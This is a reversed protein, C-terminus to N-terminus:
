RGPADAPAPVFELFDINFNGEAVVSVKMVHLGQDLRVRALEPASSWIHWHTTGPLPIPGTAEVGDFAISIQAADTRSTMHAQIVYTGAAKVEVSYKVWEGPATWGLYLAGVKEQVGDVTKDLGNKTYSLDVGEDMRFRDVFSDGKNLTGSGNNVADTDSYAVGQGGTDYWEMEVRGPILQPRSEYPKGSYAEQARVESMAILAAALALLRLDAGSIRLPNM